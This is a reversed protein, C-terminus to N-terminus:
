LVSEIKQRLNQIMVTDDLVVGKEDVLIFTPVAKGNFKDSFVNQTDWLSFWPFQEEEVAKLWDEKDKDISISVIELGKESFEKYIEKM